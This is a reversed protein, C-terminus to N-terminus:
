SHRFGESIKIYLKLGDIAKSGTKDNFLLGDPIKINPGSFFKM